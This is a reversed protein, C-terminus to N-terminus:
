KGWASHYCDQMEKKLFGVSREGMMGPIM